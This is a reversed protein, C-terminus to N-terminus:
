GIEASQIGLIRPQASDAAENFYDSHFHRHDTSDCSVADAIWHNSVRWLCGGRRRRVPGVVDPAPIGIRAFRGAGQADGFLFKQIGESLFVGGVLLRIFLTPTPATTRLLKSM